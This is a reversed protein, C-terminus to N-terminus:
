FGPRYSRSKGTYPDTQITFFNKPPQGGSYVNGDDEHLTFFSEQLGLLVMTSVGSADAVSVKRCTGDPLFRVACYTANTVGSRHLSDPTIPNELAPSLERDLSIVVGEPLRILEGLSTVTETSQGPRNAVKFTRLSHFYPQAGALAPYAYFDVEVTLNQAFATQQAESLTTMILEGAGTLRAGSQWNFLAPASFALLISIVTIM